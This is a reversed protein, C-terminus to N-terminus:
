EIGEIINLIQSKPKYKHVLSTQKGRLLWLTQWLTTWIAIFYEGCHKGGNNTHIVSAALLNLLKDM